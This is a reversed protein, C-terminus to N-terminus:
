GACIIITTPYYTFYINKITAILEMLLRLSLLCSHCDFQLKVADKLLDGAHAIDGGRRLIQIDGLGRDALGDLLEFLLQLYPQKGSARAANHQRALPLHQQVIDRVAEAEDLAALFLERLRALQERALQDDARAVRYRLGIQDGPELGKMLVIRGDLDADEVARALHDEVIQVRPLDVDGKGALRLVLVGIGDAVAEIGMLDEDGRRIVVTIEVVGVRELLDRGEREDQELALRAGAGIDLLIELLVADAQLRLDLEARM